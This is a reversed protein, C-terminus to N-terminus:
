PDPPWPQVSVSTQLWGSTNWTLDAYPHGEERVHIIKIARDTEAGGGVNESIDRPGIAMAFHPTPKGLKEAMSLSSVILFRSQGLDSHEFAATQMWRSPGVGRDLIPVFVWDPQFAEIVDGVLPRIKIDQCIFTVCRGVNEIDAVVIESGSATDEVVQKGKGPNPLGLGIAVDADIKAPWIKRQRWLPTGYRNLAQSENWAQYGDNSVTLGTGAVTLAPSAKLSRLLKGLSIAENETVVFEPAIAFMAEGAAEIANFITTSACLTSSTTCTMARSDGLPRDTFILDNAKTAVPIFM